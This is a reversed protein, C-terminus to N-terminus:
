YALQARIEGDKNADTHVNVYLGGDRYTMLQYPTLRTLPPVTWVNAEGRTLTIIVPGNIGKAGQHIQAMTGVVGHTAISGSVNGDMSVLLEGSGNGSTIVPPVEQEGTLTLSAADAARATIGLLLAIAIAPAVCWTVHNKSRKM